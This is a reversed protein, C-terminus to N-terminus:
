TDTTNFVRLRACATVSGPTRWTPSPRGEAGLAEILADRGVGDWAQPEYRLLVLYHAQNEAERNQRCPLIGPIGRLADLLADASHQRTTNQTPLKALQSLLLGAQLESLRYNWAVNHHEYWLGAKTRGYHRLSWALDAYEDNATTFVGGEGCTLLKSQQLSFIAVDGLAGAFRGGALSAGQAQAADEIVALNHERAIANIRTMDAIGGGFHVPLIARTRPTIAGEILEPNLDYTEPEIDVFVPIASANLMCSASAIFTYPTTIVEDGPQLGIVRCCIELGGSGSSVALAHRVHQFRAFAQEFAEVRSVEQTPGGSLETPSYRCMWWKGSRVVELVSREDDADVQPWAPFPRTRVSPGGTIALAGM